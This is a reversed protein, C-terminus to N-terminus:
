IRRCFETMAPVHLIQPELPGRMGPAEWVMRAEQQQTYADPSKIFAHPGIDDDLHKYVRPRYTVPGFGGMQVQQKVRLAHTVHEYVIRPKEV